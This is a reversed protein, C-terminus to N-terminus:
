VYIRMYANMIWVDLLETRTDSKSGIKIDENM